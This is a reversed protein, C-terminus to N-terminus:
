FHFFFFFAILGKLATCILTLELQDNIVLILYSDDIRIRHFSKKKKTNLMCIENFGGMATALRDKAQVKTLMNLPLPSPSHAM